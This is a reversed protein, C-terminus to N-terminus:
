QEQGKPPNPLASLIDDVVAGLDVYAVDIYSVTLDDTGDFHDTWHDLAEQLPVVVSPSDGHRDISAVLVLALKRRLDDSV